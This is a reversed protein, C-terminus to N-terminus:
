HLMEASADPLCCFHKYWYLERHSAAQNGAVLCGLIWQSMHQDEPSILLMIELADMITWPTLPRHLLYFIADNLGIGPHFAFQLLDM